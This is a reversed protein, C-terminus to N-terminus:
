DHRWGNCHAIEHRLIYQYHNKSYAGVNYPLVIKCKDDWVFACAQVYLGKGISPNDKAGCVEHTDQPAVYHITLNGRYPYDYQWPIPPVKYEKGLVGTSVVCLSIVIMVVYTLIACLLKM